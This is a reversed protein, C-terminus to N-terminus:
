EFEADFPPNGLYKQLLFFSDSGTLDLTDIKFAEINEPTLISLDIGSTEKPSSQTSSSNAKTDAQKPDEM